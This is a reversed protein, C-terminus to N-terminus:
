NSVGLQLATLKLGVNPNGFPDGIVLEIDNEDHYVAVSNFQHSPFV